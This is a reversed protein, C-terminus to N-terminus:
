GRKFQKSLSVGQNQYSSGISPGYVISPTRLLKEYILRGVVQGDELLFPVEHSRVELVARTGKVESHGYGFGPDFFGAYHVRFEGFAPDYAIMAAAYEPPVRVKEKSVLIHFDDPYLIISKSKGGTVPEWYELPDYYSVKDLDIPEPYRKAKYGIIPMEKTGQLDVSVWLGKSIEAKGPRGDDFYVLTAEKDLRTIKSDSMEASKSIFRLQNLQSGEKVIVSFHLPVIEVYLPGHYGPPVNEYESGFDTILRTFVDLRGTTSKPNAKGSILKPLSLREMLPVIFVRGKELVKPNTLDLENLTLDKIKDLVTSKSGPLFSTQIQYARNGLRLDLSAPQIQRKAIETKAFIVSGKILDLINQSPLVGAGAHSVHESEFM